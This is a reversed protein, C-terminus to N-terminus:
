VVSSFPLQNFFQFNSLGEPLLEQLNIKKLSKNISIEMLNSEFYFKDKQALYINEPFRDGLLLFSNRFDKAEATVYISDGPRLFLQFFRRDTGFNYLSFDDSDLRILFGGDDHIAFYNLEDGVYLEIERSESNVIIGTIIISSDSPEKQGCAFFLLSLSISLISLHSM